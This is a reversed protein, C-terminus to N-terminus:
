FVREIRGWAIRAVKAVSENRKGACTHAAGRTRLSPLLLPLLITTRREIV